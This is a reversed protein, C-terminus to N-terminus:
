AFAGHSSCGRACRSSVQNPAMLASTCVSSWCGLLPGPGNECVADLHSTLPLQTQRRIDRYMDKDDKRTGDGLM